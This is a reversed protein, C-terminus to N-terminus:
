NQITAKTYTKNKYFNEIDNINNIKGVLYKHLLEQTHITNTKVKINLKENSNLIKILQLVKNKKASGKYLKYHHDSMLIIIIEDKTSLKKISDFIRKITYDTYKLNLLYEDLNIQHDKKLNLNLIKRVQNAPEKPIRLHAFLLSKNSNIFNEIDSFTMIGFGDIDNLKDLKEKYKFLDIDANLIETEITKKKKIINLFYKFQSIIPYSSKIGYFISDSNKSLKYKPAKCNELGLISCYDILSSYVEYEINNKELRGFITNEKEFKIFKQNKGQMEIKGKKTILKHFESGILNATM